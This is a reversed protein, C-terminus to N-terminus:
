SYGYRRSYDSWDQQIVRELEDNSLHQNPQYDDDKGQRDTLKTVIPQSDGLNLQEYISKITEIPHEVLEEYHVDIIRDSPLRQRDIEFSDYMRHLCDIVYRHLREEDDTSQLSQVDALARWMKKTSPYLKRPDRVMHIFKAEPYMDALIGLRGTHPPSKIILPKGTHYTLARFFWDIDIKWRQLDRPKFSQSGLSDLYPVPNNPFAIRYYPTPAGLVMLAFEDEQPLSWGVKMNDMPRRDPLLFNGFRRILKESLLFHWPAFCQFTNPSAYREDLQLMEHMLTTGSRWHGLIFLPPGALKTRRIARGHILHQTVAMLDNIPAFFVLAVALHLRSPSVRFGNRALLPWWIHSPM